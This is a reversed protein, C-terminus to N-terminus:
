IGTGRGGTQLQGPPNYTRNTKLAKAASNPRYGLEKAAKRIRRITEESVDKHGNLAKSVTAISVGCYVSIDKLSTEKAKGAAKEAM